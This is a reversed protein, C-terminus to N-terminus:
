GVRARRDFDLAVLHDTQVQAPTEERFFQLRDAFQSRRAEDVRKRRHRALLEQPRARPRDQGVDIEHACLPQLRARRM